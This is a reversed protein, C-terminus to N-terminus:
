IEKDTGQCYILSFNPLTLPDCSSSSKMSRSLTLNKCHKRWFNCSYNIQKDRCAHYISTLLLTLSEIRSLKENMFKFCSWFKSVLKLEIDANLSASFVWQNMRKLKVSQNEETLKLEIWNIHNTTILNISHRAMKKTKQINFSVM